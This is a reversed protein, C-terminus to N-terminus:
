YSLKYLYVPEDILLWVCFIVPDTITGTVVSQKEIDGLLIIRQLEDELILVDDSSIFRGGVPQPALYHQLFMLLM